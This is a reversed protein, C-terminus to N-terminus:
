SEGGVRKLYYVRNRWVADQEKKWLEILARALGGIDNSRITRHAVFIVGQHSIGEASWERLLPQITHQDYSVLSFGEAYAAALVVRDANARYIGGKWTQVSHIELEPVREVVGQAVKPPIQEDLLLALV